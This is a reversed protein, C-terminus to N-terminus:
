MVFHFIIFFNLLNLNIKMIKIMFIWFIILDFNM